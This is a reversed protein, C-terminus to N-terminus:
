PADLFRAQISPPPVPCTDYRGFFRYRHRAFLDYLADRIPHPVLGLPQLFSWTGGLYEAVKLAADSRIWVKQNMEIWVVSDIGTLSQHSDIIARAYNTDLAAFRLTGRRDHRLIFQILGNCFGCVGDYLLVPGDIEGSRTLLERDPAHEAL